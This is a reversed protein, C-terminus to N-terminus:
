RLNNICHILWLAFSERESQHIMEPLLNWLSGETETNTDDNHLCSLMLILDQDTERLLIANSNDAMSKLEM